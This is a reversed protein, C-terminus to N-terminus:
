AEDPIETGDERAAERAARRQSHEEPSGEGGADRMLLYFRRLYSGSSIVVCAVAVWALYKGVTYYRVTYAIITLAYVVGTLKGIVNSTVVVRKTEIIFLSAGLIILDRGVILFAPWLPFERLQILFLVLAGVTIKDAVPDLVKGLNSVQGFRRAFYGDLADSLVAVSMLLLALGDYVATRQVLCFLIFPLLCIRLLSLANPLTSIQGWELKSLGAEPVGLCASKLVRDEDMRMPRELM